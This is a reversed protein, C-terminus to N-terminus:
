SRYASSLFPLEEEVACWESFYCQEWDPAWTASKSVHKVRPDKFVERCSILTTLVDMFCFLISQGGAGFNVVWLEKCVTIKYLFHPKSLDFLRGSTRCHVPHLKLETRDSELTWLSTIGLTPFLLCCRDWLWLLFTSPPFFSISSLLAWRKGVCGQELDGILRSVSPKWADSIPFAPFQLKHSNTLSNCVIFSSILNSWMDM